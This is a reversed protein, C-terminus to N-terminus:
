VIDINTDIAERFIINLIQFYQCHKDIAQVSWELFSYFFFFSFSFPAQFKVNWLYGVITSSVFPKTIRTKPKKEKREKM